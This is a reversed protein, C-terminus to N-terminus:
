TTTPPLEPLGLAERAALVVSVTMREEAPPFLQDELKAGPVPDTMGDALAAGGVDSTIDAKGSPSM